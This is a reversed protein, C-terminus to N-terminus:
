KSFNDVVRGWIEGFSIWSGIRDASVARTLVSPDSHILYRGVMLRPVPYNGDAIVLEEINKPDPVISLKSQFNKRMLVEDVQHGSRKFFKLPDFDEPHLEDALTDGCLGVWAVWLGVLARWGGFRNRRTQSM